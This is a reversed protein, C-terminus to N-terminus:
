LPYFLNGKISDMTAYGTQTQLSEHVVRRYSVSAYYSFSQPAKSEDFHWVHEVPTIKAGVIYDQLQDKYGVQATLIDVEISSAFGKCSKHYPDFQGNQSLMGQNVFTTETWDQTNRTQANGFIGLYKFGQKFQDFLKM